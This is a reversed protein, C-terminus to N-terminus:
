YPLYWAGYRIADRYFWIADRGAHYRRPLFPYRRPGAVSFRGLSFVSTLVFLPGLNVDGSALTRPNLRGDGTDLWNEVKSLWNYDHM